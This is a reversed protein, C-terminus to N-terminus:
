ISFYLWNKDEFVCYTMVFSGGIHVRFKDMHMLHKYHYPNQIIEMIKKRCAILLVKNKRELKRFEDDLTETLEFEYAM